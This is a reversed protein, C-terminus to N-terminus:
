GSFNPMSQPYPCAKGRGGGSGFNVKSVDLKQVWAQHYDEALVMLLRKVKVSRCHVLLVQLM